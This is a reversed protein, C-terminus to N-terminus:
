VGLDLQGWVSCQLASSQMLGIKVKAAMSNQCLTVAEKQLSVHKSPVDQAAALSFSHHGTGKGEV